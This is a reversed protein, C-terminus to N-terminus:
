ELFNEEEEDGSVRRVIHSVIFAIGIILLLSPWWVVVFDVFDEDVLNLSFVLFVLSLLFFAAGPLVLGLAHSRGRQIGYAVLSLGVISMFVPWLRELAVNSILTNRLLMFLGGLGLLMGVFVYSEPGNRAFALYLFYMGALLPIVPWLM